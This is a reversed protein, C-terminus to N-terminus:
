GKSLAYRHFSHPLNPLLPEVLSRDNAIPDFGDGAFVWSRHGLLISNIISLFFAVAAEAAIGKIDVIGGKFIYTRHVARNMAAALTSSPLGVRDTPFSTRTCCAVQVEFELFNERCGVNPLVSRPYSRWETHGNMPCTSPMNLYLLGVILRVSKAPAGMDPSYCDQLAVQFRNWDIKNSLVVLPHDPNLLQDFHSQFLSLPSSEPRLRPKM